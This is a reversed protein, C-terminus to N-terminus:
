LHHTELDVQTTLLQNGHLLDAEARDVMAVTLQFLLLDMIVTEM